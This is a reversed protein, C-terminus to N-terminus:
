RLTRGAQRFRSYLFLTWGMGLTFGLGCTSSINVDVCYGRDARSMTVVLNDGPTFGRMVGRARIAPTDLEAAAARTRFRFVLDEKEAGLLLIEHRFRDHLTVLPVEAPM